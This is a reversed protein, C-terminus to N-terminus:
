SGPACHGHVTKFQHRFELGFAILRLGDVGKRAAQLPSLTKLGQEADRAAALREGHGVDNLPELRGRQNDAVVLGKGGLEVALELLEERV